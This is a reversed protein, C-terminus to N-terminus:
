PDESPDAPSPSEDLRQLATHADGFDPAADLAQRYRGRAEKPAGRLELGVGINYHAAAPGQAARFVRWAEDVREAAVLAFGLNNRTKERSADLKLSTRLADVAQDYEGTALLVFGLNNWIEPDRDELRAAARFQSVADTLDHQDVRLIGLQMRVSADRPHRGVAAELLEAADELLGLERLARAQVVDVDLGKQGDASTEGILKLASESTGAEIMTVAIELRVAERGERSDWVPPEEATKLGGPKACAAGLVAVVVAQRLSV